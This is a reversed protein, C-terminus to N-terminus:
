EKKGEGEMERERMNLLSTVWSVPLNILPICGQSLLFFCLFLLSAPFLPSFLLLFFAPLLVRLLFPRAQMAQIRYRDWLQQQEVEAVHLM